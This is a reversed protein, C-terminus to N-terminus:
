LLCKNSCVKRKLLYTLNENSLWASSKAVQHVAAWWAERDMLNELCPFQLPNDNGEGPSRGLGPISGPDGASCASEKSVSSCLFSAKAGDWLNQCTINESKNTELYKEIKRRIEEKVKQNNLIMKNLRWVDTFKGTKKLYYIELKEVMTTPFSVQYSKM